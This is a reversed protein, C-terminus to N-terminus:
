ETERYDCRLCRKAEEKIKYDWNVGRNVLLFNKIREEVSSYEVEVRESEVPEIDPDFYVAPSHPIRWSFTQICDPNLKKEISVAVEEGHGIAVALNALKIVDGAAFVLPDSTQHTYKNSKITGDRNTELNKAFSLDILQSIAPILMRCNFIVTSNEGTIPEPRKRGSSDYDGLSQKRCKLGKIRGNELLIEEVDVLEVPTIGEEILEEIEEHDAPMEDITRRYALTVSKAGLRLATRAVDIATNGGGVIVVDDHFEKLDNHAVLWLFDTGGIVGEADEGPLGLKRSKWGGVAIVVADHGAKITDFSIDKGITCNTKIDIGMALINNIENDLIAKPYRYEPIGYRLMGGPKDQSEYVTVTHGLRRLFFAATLGSPGSGIIGISKIEAEPRKMIEPMTYIGDRGGREAMFRKIERIAVPADLTNRRCKSECPHTCTLGCAMPFPNRDLHAILAEEYRGESTFAIFAPINVGAPCANQCPTYVLEACVGAPCKKEIIHAEYEERFNALTSLVPNPATQGLGCFASIKIDEGLTILEDIDSLEGHGEIIKNLIDLMRKTGIRCPPCKGCSEDQIFEMFFRALDVMCTDESMVILGGSGMMAGAKKLSEYDIKINLLNKPLCGGSPGGIQAGKFEKDGIIGGGIDYIIEGLTIGMPVEVLGVNKVAGALAFIKTGKSGETGMSAFFDSGFRFLPPINSLTEVNNVITPAEWVGSQAPFPPKPLPEGRKGHISSILATEEGCVFAGAGMRIEISFSFESEFIREGIIGREEAQKIAIELREIALPYEARCYIYGKQAGIAYGAILMGEIVSHPDAELQSRDMFAGPDGEDANCIVYKKGNFAKEKAAFEWKIGTPFGGGGRGRLSSKKVENVVNEPSMKKLINCLSFYGGIGIYEDINEPDILGAYLRAFRHQKKFFPIDSMYAVPKLTAPNQYVFDDVIKGKVIHERIITDVKEPTLKIYLVNDPYVAAVPGLECIGNCGTKILEIADGYTHITENTNFANYVADCGSSKCGTGGCILIYKKDTQANASRNKISEEKNKQINELEKLSRIKM